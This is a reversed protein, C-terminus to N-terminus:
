HHSVVQVVALTHRVSGPYKNVRRLGYRALLGLFKDCKWPFAKDFSGIAIVFDFVFVCLLFALTSLM